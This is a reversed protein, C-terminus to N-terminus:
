LQSSMGKPSISFLAKRRAHIIADAFRDAYLLQCFARSPHVLIKSRHRM